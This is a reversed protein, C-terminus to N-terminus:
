RVANKRGIMKKKYIVAMATAGHEDNTAEALNITLYM